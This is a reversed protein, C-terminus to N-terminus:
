EITPETNNLFLRAHVDFAVECYLLALELSISKRTYIFKSWPYRMLLGKFNGHSTARSGASYTRSVAALSTGEVPM